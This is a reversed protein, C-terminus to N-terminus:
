SRGPGAQDSAAAHVLSAAQRSARRLVAERSTLTACREAVMVGARLFLEGQVPPLPATSPPQIGNQERTAASRASKARDPPRTSGGSVALESRVQAREASVTLDGETLGPKCPPEPM